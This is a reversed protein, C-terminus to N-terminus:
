ENHEKVDPKPEYTSIAAIAVINLLLIFACLFVIFGIMMMKVANGRMAFAAAWQVIEQPWLSFAPLAMHAISPENKGNGTFSATAISVFLLIALVGDVIYLLRMPNNRVGLLEDFCYAAIGFITEDIYSDDKDKKSLITEKNGDLSSASVSREENQDM